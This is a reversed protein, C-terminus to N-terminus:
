PTLNIKGTLTNEIGYMIPIFPTEITTYGPAPVFETVASTGQGHLNVSEGTASDVLNSTTVRWKVNPLQGTMKIVFEGTAEINGITVVADTVLLVNQVTNKGPKEWQHQNVHVIRNITGEIPGSVFSGFVNRTTLKNNGAEKTEVIQANCQIVMSTEVPKAAFVLSFSALTLVMLIFGTLLIKKNM